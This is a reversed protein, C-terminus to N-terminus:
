QCAQYEKFDKVFGEKDTRTRYAHFHFRVGKPDIYCEEEEDYTWNMVNCEDSKWKKSQEKLMTAYPILAM